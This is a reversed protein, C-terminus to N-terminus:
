FESRTDFLSNALRNYRLSVEFGGNSKSASKYGSINVDYAMGIAYDGLELILKPILADKSRYFLGFGIANQTKEGTTKTGTALRVKIYSGTVFEYAGRIKYEAPISKDKKGQKQIVFAPTLTFRTDEFDINSFLSGVLRMPLRYVSGAAFEQKPRNLHYAALGIRVKTVDDHDTDIKVSSAEYAIGMGLDTTTFNRYISNEGSNAEPDIANGNFQSAYTLKSYDASNGIAGGYLGACLVSKKSLKVLGSINVMAQTRSLKAAGARDQFMVLGLGLFAKRRKSKFLGADVSLNITKFPNGMAQWQSRYNVIARFYGPFFGTNAPNILLPTESVQSFHIDQARTQVASTLVFVILITRLNKM